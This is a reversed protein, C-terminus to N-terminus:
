WCSSVFLAAFIAAWPRVKFLRYFGYLVLLSGLASPFTDWRDDLRRLGPREPQIFGVRSPLGKGATNYFGIQELAGCGRDLSRRAFLNVFAGQIWARTLLSAPLASHEEIALETRM